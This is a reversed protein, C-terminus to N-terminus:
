KGKRYNHAADVFRKFIEESPKDNWYKYMLEPHWQICWIFPHVTSRIAEITGDAARALVQMDKAPFRIAQHHHTNTEYVERGVIDYLETNKYVMVNHKSDATRRHEIHQYINGGMAINIFQAGRCVGLLPLGLKRAARFLAFEFTDREPEYTGIETSREEGFYSPHVDGGGTFLIGDCMSALDAIDKNDNVIPLMLPLGGGNEIVEMFAASTGAATRGPTNEWYRMTIGIVPKM